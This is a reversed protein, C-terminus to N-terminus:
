EVRVAGESMLTTVLIKGKISTCVKLRLRRIFVDILYLFYAAFAFLIPVGLENRYSHWVTTQNRLVKKSLSYPTDRYLALPKLLGYARVGKKLILLWWLTEEGHSKGITGLIYSDFLDRSIVVTPSGIGRRTLGSIFNFSSHTSLACSALVGTADMKRYSTYSFLYNNESMFEIQLALKEPLWLDDADLFAIYKGKAHAIAKARAHAPGRDNLNNILRVRSDATEIERVISLTHDKSGGDVVLLEWSQFSQNLVSNISEKIYASSNFAPMVISVTVMM